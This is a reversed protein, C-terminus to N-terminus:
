SDAASGDDLLNAVKLLQSASLDSLRKQIKYVLALRTTLPWLLMSM